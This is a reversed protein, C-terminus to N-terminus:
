MCKIRACKGTSKEEFDDSKRTPTDHRRKKSM